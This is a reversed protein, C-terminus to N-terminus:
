SPLMATFKALCAAIAKSRLAMILAVSARWRELPLISAETEVCQQQTLVEQTRLNSIVMTVNYSLQFGDGTAPLLSPGGAVLIKYFSSASAHPRPFRRRLGAAIPETVNQINPIDPEASASAIAVGILLGALGAQGNMIAVGAQQGRTVVNVSNRRADAEVEVSGRSLMGAIEVAAYRPACAGLCLAVLAALAMVGSPRWM